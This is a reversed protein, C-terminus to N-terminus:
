AGADVRDGKLSNCIFHSCQVNDPVHGGGKAMPIIHDLSASMLNPYRLDPDVAFSCIGCTWGDREYVDGSSM